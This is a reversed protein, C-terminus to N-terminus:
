VSAGDDIVADLAAERKGEGGLATEGSVRSQLGDGAPLARQLVELVYAEFARGFSELARSRRELRVRFVLGAHPLEAFTVPDLVVVNAGHVVLLPRERLCRIPLDPPQEFARGPEAGEAPWAAAVFDEQSLVLSGTVQHFQEALRLNSGVTAHNFVPDTLPERVPAYLYILANLVAIYRHLELGTAAHIEDGFEPWASEMGRVFLRWQRGLDQPRMPLLENDLRQRRWVADIGATRSRGDGALENFGCWRRRGWVDGATLLASVLDDGDVRMIGVGSPSFRSVWRALELLQGRFVVSAPTRQERGFADLRRLTTSSAGVLKMCTRQAEHWNSSGQRAVIRGLQAILKLTCGRDFRQLLRVFARGDSPCRNPLIQAATPLVHM